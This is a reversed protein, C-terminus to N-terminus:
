RIRFSISETDSNGAADTAVIELDYAKRERFIERKNYEMCNRCLLIPKAEPDNPDILYLINAKESLKINLYLKNDEVKMLDLTIMPPTVDIDVAYKKDQKTTSISDKVTFFYEVRKREFDSMDATFSCLVSDGSPCGTSIIQMFDEGKGLERYNLIVERADAETYKVTFTSNTRDKTKPSSSIIKPKKSDINFVVFKFAENGGKDGAKIALIHFGDSFVSNRSVSKCEGSCIRKPKDPINGNVIDLMDIYKTSYDDVQVQLAIRTVSYLYYDIPSIISIKPETTDVYVSNINSRTKSFGDDIEFYYKIKKGDYKKLDLTIACEELTGPSCQDLNAINEEPDLGYHISIGPSIKEEYRISFLGNEVYEDNKPETSFIIPAKSDVSFRVRKTASNGFHDTATLTLSHDGDSVRRLKYTNEKCDRCVLASNKGRDLNAKVESAEEDLSFSLLVELGSVKQGETPSLITIEPGKLDSSNTKGDCWCLPYSKCEFTYSGSCVICCGETCIEGTSPGTQIESGFPYCNWGATAINSLLVLVLILLILKLQKM